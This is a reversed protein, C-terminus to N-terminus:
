YKDQHLQRSRNLTSGPHSQSYESPALRGGMASNQTNEQGNEVMGYESGYDSESYEKGQNAYGYQSEYISFFSFFNNKAKKCLIQPNRRHFDPLDNSM